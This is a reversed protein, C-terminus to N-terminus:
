SVASGTVRNRPLANASTAANAVANFNLPDKLRCELPIPRHRHQQRIVVSVPANRPYARTSSLLERRQQLLIRRRRRPRQEALPIQRERDVLPRIHLPM